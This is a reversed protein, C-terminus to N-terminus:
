SENNKDKFVLDKLEDLEKKFAQIESVDVTLQQVQRRLRNEENITLSDVAKTYELLIKNRSEKSQSDYYFDDLKLSHGMLLEKM